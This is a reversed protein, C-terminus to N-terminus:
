YLESTPAYANKFMLHTRIYLFETRGIKNNNSPDFSQWSDSLAPQITWSNRNVLVCIDGFYALGIGYLSGTSVM